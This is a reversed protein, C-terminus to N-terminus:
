KRTNKPNLYRKRYEAPSIGVSKRFTDSFYSLSTYGLMSTIESVSYFSNELFEKAHGIRIANRYEIPTTGTTQKFVRLFHYKSIHCMSAYEDLTLNSECYRNMHQIAPAVNTLSKPSVSTQAQERQIISLIRLLLTISILEYHPQKQLLEETIEEFMIKLQQLIRVSYVCSTKLSFEKPLADCQFHVYYFEAVKDGTYKHHQREGPAFLVASGAEATVEKPFFFTESEKAVFFLLWDSRGNPRFIERKPAAFIHGSSVIKIGAIEEKQEAYSNFIM